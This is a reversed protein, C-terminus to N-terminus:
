FIVVLDGHEGKDAHLFYEMPMMEARKAELFLEIPYVYYRGFIQWLTGIRVIRAADLVEKLFGPPIKGPYWELGQREFPVPFFEKYGLQSM